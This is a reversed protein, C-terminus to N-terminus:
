CTRWRENLCEGAILHRIQELQPASLTMPETFAGLPPQPQGPPPGGPQSLIQGQGLMLRDSQTIQARSSPGIEGPVGAGVSTSMGHFSSPLTGQLQTPQYTSPAPSGGGPQQPFVNQSVTQPLGPMLPAQQENWPDPLVQVANISIDRGVIDKVVGEGQRLTVIDADVTVRMLEQLISDISPRSEKQFRCCASLVRELPKSADWEWPLKHNEIAGYV